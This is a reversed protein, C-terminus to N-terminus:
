KGKSFLCKCSGHQWKKGCHSGFYYSLRFHCKKKRQYQIGEEALIRANEYDGLIEYVRAGINMVSAHGLTQTFWSKNLSPLDQTDIWVKMSQKCAEQADDTLSLFVLLKNMAIWTDKSYTGMAGIGMKWIADLLAKSGIDDYKFGIVDFLQRAKLKEGMIILVHMATITLDGVEAVTTSGDM